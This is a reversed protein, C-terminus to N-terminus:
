HLFVTPLPISTIYLVSAPSTFDMLLKPRLVQLPLRSPFIEANVFPYHWFQHCFHSHATNIQSLFPSRARTLVALFSLQQLPCSMEKNVTTFEHLSAAGSTLHKKPKLITVRILIYGITKPAPMSRERRVLDLLHENVM